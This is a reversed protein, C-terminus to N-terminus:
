LVSEKGGAPPVANCLVANKGFAHRKGRYWQDKLLMNLNPMPHKGNMAVAHSGKIVPRYIRLKEEAEGPRWLFSQGLGRCPVIGEVTDIGEGRHGLNLPKLRGIDVTKWCRDVHFLLQGSPFIQVTACADSLDDFAAYTVSLVVSITDRLVRM